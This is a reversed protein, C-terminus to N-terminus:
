KIHNMKEDIEKKILFTLHMELAYRYDSERMQHRLKFESTPLNGVAVEIEPYKSINSYIQLEASRIDFPQKQLENATDLIDKELPTIYKAVRLANIIFNMNDM